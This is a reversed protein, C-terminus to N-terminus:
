KISNLDYATRISNMDVVTDCYESGTNGSWENKITVNKLIANLQEECHLKAFQIMRTLTVHSVVKEVGYKLAFEEATPIKNEM